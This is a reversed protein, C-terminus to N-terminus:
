GEDKILACGEIHCFDDVRCQPCVTWNACGNRNLVGAVACDLAIDAAQLILYDAESLIESM